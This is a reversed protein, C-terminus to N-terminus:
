EHTARVSTVWGSTIGSKVSLISKSGQFKNKKFLWKCHIEYCWDYFSFCKLKLWCKTWRQEKTMRDNMSTHLFLCKKLLGQSSGHSKSDAGRLLAAKLQAFRWKCTLIDWADNLIKLFLGLLLELLGLFCVSLWCCLSLNWLLGCTTFYNQSFFGM